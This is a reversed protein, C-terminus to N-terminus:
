CQLRSTKQDPYVRCLERSGWPRQMRMEQGEQYGVHASVHGTLTFDHRTTFDNHYRDPRYLERTLGVAEADGDAGLQGCPRLFIGYNTAISIFLIFNELLSWLRQLQMEAGESLGSASLSINYNYLRIALDSCCKDPHLHHRQARKVHM